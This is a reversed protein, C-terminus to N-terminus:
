SLAVGQSTEGKRFHQSQFRFGGHMVRAVGIGHCPVGASQWPKLRATGSYGSYRPANRRFERAITTHHRGLRRGIARFSWRMQRLYFIAVREQANVHHYSM